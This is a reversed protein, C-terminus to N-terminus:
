GAYTRDIASLMRDAPLAREFHWGQVTDCGLVRLRAAQQATEVVEATVIQGLSHALGILARVVHEDAASSPTGDLNKILPGALKIVDIPLRALYIFSSYGTGFDDIAIRAGLARLASLSQAAAGGTEVIASETVELQLATGPLNAERLIQAVVEPFGKDNLQIPSVNVSVYRDTDSTSRSDIWIRAQRCAEKLVYTGLAGILGNDEALDIFYNPGLTGLTPHQWRVLAEAGAIRNSVLDIIPQYEVVFQKSELASQMSTSLNYRTREQAFRDPDYAAWRGRGSEKAHYLTADAGKMLDSASIKMAHEAMVGISASVTFHHGLMEIPPELAALMADALGTLEDVGSTNPVLIVFEDGGLRAIVQEPGQSCGRLREAVKVLLQDGVHHGLTDNIDKFRDLDAYVVGITATEDTFADNLRAFFQARNPLDTLPDHLAQHRMQEQLVHRETIDEFLALTYVPAGATDRILSVNIAIWVTHGDRHLHPKEIRVRDCEGRVLAGYREWTAPTDAPHTLDTARFDRVMEDVDYGLMDAFASNVALINGAIDSIGVGVGAQAFVAHLLRPDSTGLGSEPLKASASDESDHERHLSGTM